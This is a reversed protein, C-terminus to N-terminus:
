LGIGVEYGLASMADAETEFEDSSWQKDDDDDAAAICWSFFRKGPRKFITLTEGSWRRWLNGKIKSRRWATPEEFEAWAALRAVIVPDRHPRKDIKPM